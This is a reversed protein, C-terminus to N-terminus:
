ADAQSSNAHGGGPNLAVDTLALDQAGWRNTNQTVKGGSSIETSDKAWVPAHRSGPQPHASLRRGTWNGRDSHSNVCSSAIAMM